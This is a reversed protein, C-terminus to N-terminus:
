AEDYRGVLIKASDRILFRDVISQRRISAHLLSQKEALIIGKTIADALEQAESSGAIVGYEGVISAADGVDTTVCPLGCLMAECLVNPFSEGFSSSVVFLDLAHYIKIIDAMADVFIVRNELLGFGASFDELQSVGDGCLLLKLNKDKVLECVSSFARLLNLQNKQPHLRAVCGIIFDSSSLNLGNRALARLDKNPLYFDNSRFGNPLYVYRASSSYGFRKHREIGDISNVFVADPISSFLSLIKVLFRTKLSDSQDITHRISWFLKASPFWLKAILAVADGRYMWGQIIDPGVEFLGPHRRFIFETFSLVVVGCQNFEDRLDMHRGIVVIVFDISADISAIEYVLRLLSREAGHRELSSVFIIVKMLLKKVFFIEDSRM